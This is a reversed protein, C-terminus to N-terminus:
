DATLPLNESRLVTRSGSTHLTIERINNVALSFGADSFCFSARGRLLIYTGGNLEQCHSEQEDDVTRNLM